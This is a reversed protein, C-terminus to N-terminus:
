EKNKPKFLSPTTVESWPDTTIETISHIIRVEDSDGESELDASEEFDLSEEPSDWLDAIPPLEDFVMEPPDLPDLPHFDGADVFTVVPDTAVGHIPLEEWDEETPLDLLVSSPDEPWSEPDVVDPESDDQASPHIGDSPSVGDTIGDLVLPHPMEDEQPQELGMEPESNGEEPASIEWDEVTPEVTEQPTFSLLVDEPPNEQEPASIEWDEVTSEVIEEREEVPSEVEEEAPAALLVEEADSEGSIEQRPEVPSEVGEETPAALLVEEADSEGSIEQRPEVPSEVGEETPATLLVEEADSEGSIEQRPEVPSEVGEEAPATLGTEPGPIVEEAPRVSSEQVVEPEGWIDGDGGDNMSLPRTFAPNSSPHSSTTDDSDWMDRSVFVEDPEEEEEEIELVEVEDEAEQLLLDSLSQIVVVGSLNEPQAVAVVEEEDLVIEMSPPPPTVAEPTEVTEKGGLEVDQVRESVPVPMEAMTPEVPTPEVEEDPVVPAPETRAELEETPLTTPEVEEDPVVPAPETRAELEETPLTTPEVEEDPAVAPAIKAEPTAVAPSQEFSVLDENLHQLTEEGLVEDLVPHRLVSTEEDPLLLEEQEPNHFEDLDQEVEEGEEPSRVVLDSVQDLLMTLSATTVIEEEDEDHTEALKAKAPSLEAPPVTEPAPLAPVDEFLLTELSVDRRLTLLSSDKLGIAPDDLEAFLATELPQDPSIGEFLVLEPTPPPPEETTLILDSESPPTETTFLDSDSGFLQEDWAEWMESAHPPAPTEPTPERPEIQLVQNAETASLDLDLIAALTDPVRASESRDLIDFHHSQLPIEVGAFPYLANENTDRSRPLSLETTSTEPAEPLASAPHDKSSPLSLPTGNAYPASPLAPALQQLYDQFLNVSQEGLDHLNAINEGLSYRYAQLDQELTQFVSRVTADWGLLLQDFQRQLERLQELRELQQLPNPNLNSPLAAKQPNEQLLPLLQHTFSELSRAMQQQLGESCRALLVQVFDGTIQQRQSELKRIEHLLAERQQRLTELEMQLPEIWQHRQQNMQRMVAQAIAEATEKGGVTETPALNPSNGESSQAFLLFQRIKALVRQQEHLKQQHVQQPNVEQAKANVGTLVQDIETILAHIDTPSTM